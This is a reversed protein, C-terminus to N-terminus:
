LTLGDNQAYNILDRVYRAEVALARGLYQHAGSDPCHEELWESAVDTLPHWLWVSGGNELDFDRQPEKVPAQEIKNPKPIRM